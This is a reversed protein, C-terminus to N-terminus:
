TFSRRVSSSPSASSSSASAASRARRPRQPGSAGVPRYGAARRARCGLAPRLGQRAPGDLYTRSWSGTDPAVDTCRRPGCRLSVAVLHTRSSSLHAGHCPDGSAPRHQPQFRAPLMPAPDVLEGTLLGQLDPDAAGRERDRHARGARVDFEHRTEQHRLSHDPLGPLHELHVVAPHRRLPLPVVVHQVHVEGVPHAKRVRDAMDVGGGTASDAARGRDLRHPLGRGVRHRRILAREM